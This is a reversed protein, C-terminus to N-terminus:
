APNATPWPTPIQNGRYAYRSVTMRKEISYYEVGDAAIVWRGTGNTLHHRLQGWNWRHRARLLHALRWWTFTDLKSFTWKAVAHKFYNAAVRRLRHIREDGHGQTARHHPGAQRAPDRENGAVDDAPRRHLLGGPPGSPASVRDDEAARVPKGTPGQHGAAREGRARRLRHPGGPRPRGALGPLDARRGPLGARAPGSLDVRGRPGRGAHRRHVGHDATAPTSNGVFFTTAAKLIANDEELRRVRAKLAKIEAQEASTVGPRQGADIEADVVWRRVTERGVGLQRAVAQAAATRSPYDERHELVMRVARARLEETIKKPM